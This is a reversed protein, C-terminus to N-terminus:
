PATIPPCNNPPVTDTCNIRGQIAPSIPTNASIWAAVVEDMLERSTARGGVPPYGDGGSQMFDNIALSYSGAVLSVAPGTCSGNAAQRVASVVRSGAPQAIDYTFCLGSVQPFRGDAAPMRSVGNELFAKLEPATVTVTSVVNGFPLM